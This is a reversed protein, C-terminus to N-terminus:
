AKGGWDTVSVSSSSISTDRPSISTCGSLRGTTPRLKSAMSTHISSSGISMFLDNKMLCVVCVLRECTSLMLYLTSTLVISCREM